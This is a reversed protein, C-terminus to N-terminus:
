EDPDQETQAALVASPLNQDGQFAEAAARAAREQQLATRLAEIEALAAPLRPDPPTPQALRHLQEHAAKLDAERQLALATVRQLQTHAARLEHELHAIQEHNSPAGLPTVGRAELAQLLERVMAGRRDVEARLAAIERAREQLTHEAASLDAVHEAQEEQAQAVARHAQTQLASLQQQQQALLAKQEAIQRLAGDLQAAQRQAGDLQAVLQQQQRQAGDLQAVLQQQQQQARALAQEGEAARRLAEAKEAELAEIQRRLADVKAPDVGRPTAEAERLKRSLAEERQTLRVREAQAEALSRTGQQIRDQLIRNERQLREALEQARQLQSSLMEGRRAEETLRMELQRPLAGAESLARGLEATRRQEEALRHEAQQRAEAARQLEPSPPPSPPAPPASPPPAAPLQVITYPDVQLRRDSAVAVYAVPQRDEDDTLSADVSVEIEDASFDVLAFGQFPVQGLMTIAPFQRRVVEYFDYYNLPGRGKLSEGKAGDVRPTAALLVAGAACAKRARALVAKPDPFLSLDPILCVEFAGDRLGADGGDRYVSFSLGQSATAVAQAVRVSDPDYVHVLRAGRALAEEALLATADGFVLVRRGELFREAHPILALPAPVAPTPNVM